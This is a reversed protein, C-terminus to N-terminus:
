TRLPLALPDEEREVRLFNGMISQYAECPTWCQPCKYQWIEKQVRSAEESSWIATLDFDVDRLNGIKKDYITCPFVNGWSDVFCSSRLAHCRMPTRGTELYKRVQKLYTRELYNVPGVGFGRLKAYDETARALKERIAKQKLGLETNHLYHGEHFINVHYDCYDLDPVERKAAAFAEPFHDVNRESLTMGLVVEVGPLERLKRFTEMQKQYGGEVGRIKDNMAEDGDCSVTIILKEPGMKMIERSNDVIKETLYGNTPFHLLLLNKCNTIAAEAIDVFDKRLTVEGGTLDMWSFRNSKSFFSRVEELSLEDQPKMQWINCTECRYNCWYTICFTLKMPFALRTANARLCQTALAAHPRIAAM